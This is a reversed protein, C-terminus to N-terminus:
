RMVAGADEIVRAIHKDHAIAFNGSVVQADDVNKTVVSGLLVKANNGITIRNSVISGPGIFAHDGIQVRGSITCRACIEAYDYIKAGHDIHTHAGLRVWNGIITADWPYVAKHITANEWIIVNSGIRVCGCHKVDLIENDYRKFEYGDGGIVVGSHIITNDGITCPGQIKVFDDIVVNDGIVVGQYSISALKSISCNKGIKTNGFPQQYEISQSLLNHLMFYDKRPNDSIVIGEISTTKLIAVDSERCIVASIKTNSILESLYKQDDLFSVMHDIGNSNSLGLGEFECDSVIKDESFYDSLRMRVVVILAEM